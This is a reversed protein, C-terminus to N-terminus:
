HEKEWRTIPQVHRILWHFYPNMQLIIVFVSDGESAKKAQKHSYKFHKERQMKNHSGRGWFWVFCYIDRRQKIGSFLFLSQVSKRSCGAYRTACFRTNKGWLHLNLLTSTILRLGSVVAPKVSILHYVYLNYHFWLSWIKDKPAFVLETKNKSLFLLLISVIM